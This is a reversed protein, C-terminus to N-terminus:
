CPLKNAEEKKSVVLQYKVDIIDNVTEFNGFAVLILGALLRAM